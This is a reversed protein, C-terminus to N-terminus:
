HRKLLIHRGNVIKQTKERGTVSAPNSGRSKPDCIYKRGSHKGLQRANEFSSVNMTHNLFCM